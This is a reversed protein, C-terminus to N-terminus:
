WQDPPPLDSNKRRRTRRYEGPAIGYERRFAISLSMASGYGTRRAIEPLPLDSKDLFHRIRNFRLGRLFESPSKRLHKRFLRVLMSPSLGAAAAADEVSIFNMFNGLFFDVAAALKPNSIALVDTSRSSVISAPPVWVPAEPVTEANMMRELLEASMRGLKLPEGSIHTTPISANETFFPEDTNCLVAFEEPVRIGLQHIVRYAVTLHRGNPIFLALPRPMESFFEALRALVSGYDALEEPRLDEKWYCVELRFGRRELEERLSVVPDIGHICGQRNWDRADIAAFNRFGRDLFYDAIMEAIRQTDGAVTRVNGGPTLTHSVVPTREFNRIKKLEELPLCDTLVGDGSWGPPIRGGCLEVQWDHDRGFRHIERVIQDNPSMMACLIQRM